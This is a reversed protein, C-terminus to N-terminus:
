LSERSTCAPGVSADSTMCPLCPQSPLPAGVESSSVGATGLARMANKPCPECATSGNASQWGAASSVDFDCSMCFSAGVTPNFTGALCPLCAPDKTARKTGSACPLCQTREDNAFQGDPCAACETAGGAVAITNPPCMECSSSGTDPNFSGPICLSCGTDCWILGLAAEITRNTDAREAASCFRPTGTFHSGPACSPNRENSGFAPAPYTLQTPDKSATPYVLKTEAAGNNQLSLMTRFENKGTADTTIYGWFSTTYVNQLAAM